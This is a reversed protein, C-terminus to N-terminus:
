GLARQLGDRLWQKSLEKKLVEIDYHTCKIHIKKGWENWEFIQHMMRDHSHYFHLLNCWVLKIIHFGTLKNFSLVFANENSM